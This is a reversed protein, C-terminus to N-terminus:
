VDRLAAYSRAPVRRGNLELGSLIPGMCQMGAKELVRASARNTTACLASVRQGLLTNLGLGIATRAMETGYGRGAEEPAVWYALRWGRTAEARALAVRGVFANSRICRASLVFQRGELWLALNRAHTSRLSSMSSPRQWGLAECLAPSHVASWVEPLDQEDPARLELRRTHIVLDPHLIPKDHSM